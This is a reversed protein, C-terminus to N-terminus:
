PLDAGHEALWRDLAAEAARIESVSHRGGVPVRRVERALRVLEALRATLRHTEEADECTQRLADVRGPTMEVSAGEHADEADCLIGRAIAIHASM